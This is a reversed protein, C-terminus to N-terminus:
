AARSAAVPEATVCDATVQRYGRGAALKMARWAIPALLGVRGAALEHSKTVADPSIPIERGSAMAIVHRIFGNTDALEFPTLKIMPQDAASGAIALQHSMTRVVPVATVSRNATTLRIAAAASLPDCDDILWLTRIQRRASAAIAEDIRDFLGGAIPDIALEMALRGYAAATSGVPGSTRVIETAREGMGASGSLHNLLRSAGCHRPAYLWAVPSETAVTVVLEAVCRRQPIGAYFDDVTSVPDGPKRWLNGNRLFDWDSM